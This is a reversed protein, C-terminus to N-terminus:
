SPGLAFILTAATESLSRVDVFYTTMFTFSGTAGIERIAVVGLLILLPPSLILSLRSPKMKSPNKDQVRVQKIRLQPSFLLIFGWVLIPFSWFLYTWRWGVTALFVALSVLGMGSGLSGLANHFGTSRSM